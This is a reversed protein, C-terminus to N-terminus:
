SITFNLIWSEHQVVRLFIENLFWVFIRVVRDLLSALDNQVFLNFFDSIIVIRNVPQIDPLPQVPDPKGSVVGFYETNKRRVRLWFKLFFRVRLWNEIEATAPTQTTIELTFVHTFSPQISSQRLLRLMLWIRLNSFNGSGSGSVSEFIKSCSCLRLRFFHSRGGKIDPLMASTPCSGTASNSEPFIRHKEKPAPDPCAILIQSFGSGSGSDSKWQPLLLLGYPWKEPLFM